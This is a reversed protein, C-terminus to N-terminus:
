HFVDEQYRRAKEPDLDVAFAIPIAMRHSASFLEKEEETRVM